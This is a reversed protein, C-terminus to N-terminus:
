KNVVENSSISSDDLIDLPIQTLKFVIATRSRTPADMEENSGTLAQIKNIVALDAKLQDKKTTNVSQHISHIQRAGKEKSHQDHRIAHSRLFNCAETFSKDNVLAEFVTDVQVLRFKKTENDIWTKQGLIIFETFGDEYDQIWKFL